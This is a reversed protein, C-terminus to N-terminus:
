RQYFTFGVFGLGGLAVLGLLVLVAVFWGSLGDSDSAYSISDSLTECSQM